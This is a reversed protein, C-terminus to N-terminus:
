LDPFSLPSLSPSPASLLLPDPLHNSPNVGQEGVLLENLLKLIVQTLKRDRDKGSTEWCSYSLQCSLTGVWAKPKGRQYKRNTSEKGCINPNTQAPNLHVSRKQGTIEAATRAAGPSICHPCIIITVIDDIAASLHTTSTQGFGQGQRCSSLQENGPIASMYNQLVKTKKRQLATLDSCQLQGQM